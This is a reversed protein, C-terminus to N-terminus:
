FDAWIMMYQFNVLEYSFVMHDCGFQDELAEGCLPCVYGENQDDPQDESQDEPDGYYKVGPECGCELAYEKEEETLDEFDWAENYQYRWDM